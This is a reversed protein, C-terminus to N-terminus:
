KDNYLKSEKINIPSSADIVVVLAISIARNIECDDWIMLNKFFHRIAVLTHKVLFSRLDYIYGIM